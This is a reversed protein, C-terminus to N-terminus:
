LPRSSPAPPVIPFHVDRYAVLWEHARRREERWRDVHPLGWDPVDRPEHDSLIAVAEEITRASDGGSGFAGKIVSGEHKGLDRITDVGLLAEAHCKPCSCPECTCDGDHSESLSGAYEDAREDLWTAFRKGHRDKDDLLYSADLAELAGAVNGNKIDMAAGVIAYQLQEIELRLRLIARESADIEVVSALPDQAWTIKLADGSGRGDRRM